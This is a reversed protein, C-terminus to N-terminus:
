VQILYRVNTDVTDIQEIEISNEKFDRVLFSVVSIMM